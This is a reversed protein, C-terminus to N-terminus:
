ASYFLTFFVARACYVPNVGLRRPLIYDSKSYHSDVFSDFVIATLVFCSKAYFIEMYSQLNTFSYYKFVFLIFYTNRTNNICKVVFDLAVCFFVMNNKTNIKYFIEGHLNNLDIFCLNLFISVIGYKIVLLCYFSFMHCYLFLVLNFKKNKM